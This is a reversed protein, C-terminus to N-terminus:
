LMDRPTKPDVHFDINKTDRSQTLMQTEFMCSDLVYFNQLSAALSDVRDQRNLQTWLSTSPRCNREGLWKLNRLTPARALLCFLANEYKCGVVWSYNKFGLLLIWAPSAKGGDGSIFVGVSTCSLTYPHRHFMQFSPVLKFVMFNWMVVVVVAAAAVVAVVGWTSCDGKSPLHKWKRRIM